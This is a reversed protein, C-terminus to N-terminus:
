TDSLKVKGNLWVEGNSEADLLFIFLNKVGTDDKIEDKTRCKDINQEAVTTKREYNINNEQAKKDSQM